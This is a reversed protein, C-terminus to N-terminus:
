LDPGLSVFLICFDYTGGQTVPIEGYVEVEKLHSDWCRGVLPSRYYRHLVLIFDTITLMGAHPLHLYLGGGRSSEPVGKDWSSVHHPNHFNTLLATGRWAQTSPRGGNGSKPM